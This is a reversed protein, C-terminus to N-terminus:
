RAQNPCIVGQELCQKWKKCFTEACGTLLRVEFLINLKKYEAEELFPMTGEVQVKVEQGTPQHRLVAEYGDIEFKLDYDMLLRGLPLLEQMDALAEKDVEEPDLYVTDSGVQTYGMLAGVALQLRVQELREREIGEHLREVRHSAGSDLLYKKRTRAMATTPAARKMKMMRALAVPKEEFEGAELFSLM